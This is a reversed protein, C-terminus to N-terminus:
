EKKREYQVVQVFIYFLLIIGVLQSSYFLYSCHWQPTHHKEEWFDCGWWFNSKGDLEHQEDVLFSGDCIWCDYADKFQTPLFICGIGVIILILYLMIVYYRM